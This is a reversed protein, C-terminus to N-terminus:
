PAVPTGPRRAARPAPTGPHRPARRAPGPRTGFYGLLVAPKLGQPREHLRHEVMRSISECETWEDGRILRLHSM